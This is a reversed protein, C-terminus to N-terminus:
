NSAAFLPKGDPGKIETSWMKKISATVKAPMTVYDLEDALKDGKDSYAWAFFKLAENTAEVDKPQVPILIFVSGTIPWSAAGPQETLIVFYHDAKEWDANAAAAVRIETCGLARRACSDDWM